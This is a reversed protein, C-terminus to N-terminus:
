WGALLILSYLPAGRSPSPLQGGAALAGGAGAGALPPNSARTESSIVEMATTSRQMVVSAEMVTQLCM